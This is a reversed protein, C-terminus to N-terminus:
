QPSRDAFMQSTRPGSVLVTFRPDAEPKRGRMYLKDSFTFLLTYSKQDLSGGIDVGM